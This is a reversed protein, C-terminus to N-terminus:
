RTSSSPRMATNAVWLTCGAQGSTFPPYPPNHTQACTQATSVLRTSNHPTALRRGLPKADSQRQKMVNADKVPM